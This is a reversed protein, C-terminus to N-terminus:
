LTQVQLRREGAGAGTDVIRYRMPARQKKSTCVALISSDQQQASWAVSHCDKGKQRLVGWSYVRLREQKEYPSLKYSTFPPISTPSSRVVPQEALAHGAGFLAVCVLAARLNMM